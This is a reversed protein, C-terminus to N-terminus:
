QQQGSRAVALFERVLQQDLQPGMEVLAEYAAKCSMAPRHSRWAIMAGFVDAITVLRVLDPIENAKIGHPYGTGDLYEHHHIVVDLLEPAIDPTEKLADFGFQPHQRLAASEEQNLPGRKELIALPVRAKGIDHIM